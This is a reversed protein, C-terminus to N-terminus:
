SKGAGLLIATLLILHGFEFDSNAGLGLNEVSSGLVGRTAQLLFVKDLVLVAANHAAALHLGALLGQLEEGALAVLGALSGEAEELLV